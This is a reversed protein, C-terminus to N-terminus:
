AEMGKSILCSHTLTLQIDQQSIVNILIWAHQNTLQTQLFSCFQQPSRIDWYFIHCLRQIKYRGVVEDRREITAITDRWLIISLGFVQLRGTAM